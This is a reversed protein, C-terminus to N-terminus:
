KCWVRFLHSKANQEKTSRQYQETSFLIRKEKKRPKTIGKTCAVSMEVGGDTVSNKHSFVWLFQKRSLAAASLFLIFSNLKMIKVLMGIYAFEYM